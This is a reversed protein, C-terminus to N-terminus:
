FLGTLIASIGAFAAVLYVASIASGIIGTILGAKTMTSNNGHNKAIYALVIAVIGAPLSMLPISCIGCIMSALSQGYYPPRYKQVPPQYYPQQYNPQQYNGQQYNPQQYNPQQYNAQQYNAQQNNAQQAGSNQQNPQQNPTHNASAQPDFSGQNM